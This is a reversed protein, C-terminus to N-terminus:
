ASVLVLRRKGGGRGLLLVTAWGVLTEEENMGLFGSFETERGGEQVIVRGNRGRDVRDEEGEVSTRGTILTVGFSTHHM